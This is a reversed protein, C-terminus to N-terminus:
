AGKARKSLSQVELDTWIQVFSRAVVRLELDLRDPPIPALYFKGAPVDLIAPMATIDPPMSAAFLAFTFKRRLITLPEERFYWKVVYKKGEIEYGTDAKVKVILGECPWNWSPTRFFKTDTRKRFRKYGNVAGPYRNVKKSDSLGSCISELSRKGREVEQLRDRMIKWFDTRPDYPRSTFIDRVKRIQATVTKMTAFDVFESLSIEM